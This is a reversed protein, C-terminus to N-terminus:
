WDRTTYRCCPLGNIQKELNSDQDSLWPTTTPDAQVAPPEIGKLSWWASM